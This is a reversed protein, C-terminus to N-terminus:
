HNHNTCYALERGSPVHCMICSISLVNCTETPSFMEIVTQVKRAVKRHRVLRLHSSSSICIYLVLISIFIFIGNTEWLRLWEDGMQLIEM